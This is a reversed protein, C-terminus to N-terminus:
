ADGVASSPVGECLEEVTVGAKEMVLTMPRARLLESTLRAIDLWKFHCSIEMQTIFQM